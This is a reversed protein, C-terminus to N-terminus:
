KSREEILKLINSDNKQEKLPAYLARTRYPMSLDAVTLYYMAISKRYVGEPCKIKESFGHWSDQTTDFIVVRNFIPKIKVVKHKPQNRIYDHTWFELHGNWADKWDENLYLILNYKRKLYLLPHMSYDLHINLHDGTKHIHWGAGHLGYDPEIISSKTIKKLVNVFEVSCFYSFLKYTNTPFLGWERISKKKELPSNYEYWKPSYYDPFEKALCNAFNPELFNDIIYHKFPFSYEKVEM